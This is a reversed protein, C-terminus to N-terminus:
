LRFYKLFQFYSFMYFCLSSMETRLVEIVFCPNRRSATFALLHTKLLFSHPEIRYCGLLQLNFSVYQHFFAFHYSRSISHGGFALCFCTFCFMTGKQEPMQMSNLICLGFNLSEIPSKLDDVICLSRVMKGTTCIHYTCALIM